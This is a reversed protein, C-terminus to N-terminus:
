EASSPSEDGCGADGTYSSTPDIGGAATYIALKGISVEIGGIGSDGIGWFRSPTPQWFSTSTMQDQMPLNTFAEEIGDVTILPFICEVPVAARM